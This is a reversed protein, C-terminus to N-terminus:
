FVYYSFKCNQPKRAYSAGEGDEDEMETIFGM